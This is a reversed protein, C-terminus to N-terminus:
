FTKLKMSLCYLEFMAIGDGSKENHEDTYFLYLLHPM